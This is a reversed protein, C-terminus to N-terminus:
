IRAVTGFPPTHWPNNIIWFVPVQLKVDQPYESDGDTFIVIGSVNKRQCEKEAHHLLCFFDTGGGGEPVACLVDAPTKFRVRPYVSSDFFMLSGEIMGETQEIAGCIESVVQSLGENSVSGSTDVYLLLEKPPGPVRHFDPLFFEADSYRRDPPSFTYDQWVEQLFHQLVEKWNLKSETLPHWFRARSQADAAAAATQVKIDRLKHIHNSTDKNRAPDPTPKQAALPERGYGQKWKKTVPTYPLRCRIDEPDEDDPSLVIIGIEGRDQKKDWRSEDDIIYRDRQGKKLRAPDFPVMDFAEEVTLTAGDQRPFFTEAYIKGLLPISEAALGLTRLRGNAVIDCALHYRDGRYLGSRDIHSLRIHMLQHALAFDVAFDGLKALWDPDFYICAGNTSIRRVQKTAVFLMEVLPEAFTDDLLLLRLRAEQLKRRLAKKKQETM